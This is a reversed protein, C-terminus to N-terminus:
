CGGVVVGDGEYMGWRRVIVGGIHEVGCDKGCEDCCDSPTDLAAMVATCALSWVVPAASRDCPVMMVGPVLKAKAEFVSADM